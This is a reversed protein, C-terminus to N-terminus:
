YNNTQAPQTTKFGVALLWVGGFFVCLYPLENFIIFIGPVPMIRFAQSVIVGNIGGPYVPKASVILAPIINLKMILLNMAGIKFGRMIIGTHHFINGIRM